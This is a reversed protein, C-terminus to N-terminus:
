KARLLPLSAGESPREVIIACHQALINPLERGSFVLAGELSELGVLPFTAYYIEEQLARAIWAPDGRRRHSQLAKRNAIGLRKTGSFAPRCPKACNILNRSMCFSSNAKLAEM